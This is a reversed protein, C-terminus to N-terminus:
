VDYARLRVLMIRRDLCGFLILDRSFNRPIESNLFIFSIRLIEPFADHLVSGKAINVVTSVM